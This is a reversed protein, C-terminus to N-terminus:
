TKGYAPHLLFIAFLVRFYAYRGDSGVEMVAFKLRGRNTVVDFMPLIFLSQWGHIDVEPRTLFVLLSPTTNFIIRNFGDPDTFKSSFIKISM